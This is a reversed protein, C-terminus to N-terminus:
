LVTACERVKPFNRLKMAVSTWNSVQSLDISVWLVCRLECCLSQM